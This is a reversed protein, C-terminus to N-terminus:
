SVLKKRKTANSNIKNTKTSQEEESEEWKVTSKAWRGGPRIHYRRPAFFRRTQASFIPPRFWELGCNTYYRQKLECNIRFARVIKVSNTDEMIAKILRIIKYSIHKWVASTWMRYKLNRCSNLIEFLHIKLNVAFLRFNRHFRWSKRLILVKM